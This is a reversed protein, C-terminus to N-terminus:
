LREYLDEKFEDKKITGVTGDSKRKVEITGDDSGDTEVGTKNTQAFPNEMGASEFLDGIIQKRAEIAQNYKDEDGGIGFWGPKSEEASANTGELLMKYIAAPLRKPSEKDIKKKGKYLKLKDQVEREGEQTKEQRAVHPDDGGLLAFLLQRAKSGRNVGDQGTETDKFFDGFAM